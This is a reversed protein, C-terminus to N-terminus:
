TFRVDQNQFLHHNRVGESIDKLNIHMSSLNIINEIMLSDRLCGLEKISVHETPHQHDNFYQAILKQVKVLLEEYNTEEWSITQGNMTSNIFQKILVEARCYNEELGIDTLSFICTILLNQTIM